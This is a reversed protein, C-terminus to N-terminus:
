TQGHAGCRRRVPDAELLQEVITAGCIECTAYTGADLRELAQEVGDLDAGIAALQMQRDADEDAM